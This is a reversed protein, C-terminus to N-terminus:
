HSKGRQFICAPYFKQLSSNNPSPWYESIPSCTLASSVGTIPSPRAPSPSQPLAESHTNPQPQLPGSPQRCSFAASPSEDPDGVRAPRSVNEEPTKFGDAYTPSSESAPSNLCSDSLSDSRNWPPSAPSGLQDMEDLEDLMITDDQEMYRYIPINPTLLYNGFSGKRTVIKADQARGHTGPSLIFLTLIITVTPVSKWTNAWSPRASTSDM